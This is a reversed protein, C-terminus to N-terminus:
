TSSGNQWDTDFTQILKTTAAPSPVTLSLEHNNFFTLYSWGSSSFIFTNGDFIGLNFGLPQNNKEKYFRVQVGASKLQELIVPTSKAKNADLLIRVDRGKSAANTLTLITDKDSVETAEIWISRSSSSIQETIQQRINATTAPTINDETLSTTKPVNLSLTTTFEWDRSYVINALKWATKDKLLVAMNAANWGDSSWNSSYVIAQSYDVVLLKVHDYQGKRAPYFQASVQNNKLENLTTRNATQFQDLLVRVDLGSKSKSILLQSLRDDAFVGQEVYISKQASNILQVTQNYIEDQTLLISEAPLNSSALEKKKM